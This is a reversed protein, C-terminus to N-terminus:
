YVMFITVFPGISNALDNAGHTFADCCASFVQLYKFAFETKEDYVEANDHISQTIAKKLVSKDVDVAEAM